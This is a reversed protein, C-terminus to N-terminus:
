DLGLLSKFFQVIQNWLGENEQPPPTMEVNETVYVSFSQEEFHEQNFDDTFGVRIVFTHEGADIPTVESEFSDFDGAELSGIYYSYFEWDMDSDVELYLGNITFRGTNAVDVSFTFVEGQVVERSYNVNLLKVLLKRLLSVGVTEKVTYTLGQSDQYTITLGLDYIGSLAEGSVAFTQTISALKGTDLREWYTSSSPEVPSFDEASDFTVKVNLADGTGENEVVIYLQFQEGPAVYQPTVSFRKMHLIPVKQAYELTINIKTDEELEVREIYPLFGAKTVTVTYEREPELYYVAVGRVTFQDPIDPDDDQQYVYDISVVADDILSGYVDKVIVTLVATEETQVSNQIQISFVIVLFIILKKKM